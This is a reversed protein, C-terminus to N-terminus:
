TISAQIFARIFALIVNGNNIIPCEGDDNLIQFHSCLLLQVQFYAEECKEKKKATQLETCFTSIIKKLM